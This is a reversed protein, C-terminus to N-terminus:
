NYDIARMVVTHGKVCKTSGPLANYKWYTWEKYIMGIHYGFVEKSYIRYAKVSTDLYPYNVTEDRQLVTLTREFNIRGNNFSKDINQYTYQWNNLYALDVDKTNIYKNGDWSLGEVVPFVMKMFNMGDQNYMMSNTPTGPPPTTTTPLITDPTVLIARVPKWIDGEHARSYVNMIYSLTRKYDRVTDSVVYKLQTRTETKSCTLDNYVISDVDYTVYHGLKVPFYNRTDDGTFITQKRCSFVVMSFLIVVLLIPLHKKAM